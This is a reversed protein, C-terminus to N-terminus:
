GMELKRKITYMAWRRAKREADSFRDLAEIDMPVLLHALHAVEPPLVAARPRKPEDGRPNGDNANAPEILNKAGSVPNDEAGDLTEQGRSKVSAALGSIEDAGSIAEPLSGYTFGPPNQPGIPWNEVQHACFGRGGSTLVAKKETKAANM